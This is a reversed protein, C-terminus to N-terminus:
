PKPKVSFNSHIGVHRSAVIDFSTVPKNQPCIQGNYHKLGLEFNYIRLQLNLFSFYPQISDWALRSTRTASYNDEGEKLFSKNAHQLAFVNLFLKPPTTCFFDKLFATFHRLLLTSEFFLSKSLVGRHCYEPSQPRKQFVLSKKFRGTAIFLSFSGESMVLIYCQSLASKNVTANLTNELVHIYGQM